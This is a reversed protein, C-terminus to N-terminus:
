FTAEFLDLFAPVSLNLIDVVMHAVIVWQLSKTKMFTITWIASMIFTSIFVEPGRFLESHLGFVAHNISFLISSYMASQLTSWKKTAELLIGRWFFEELWPNILALIIWPIFITWHNLLHNFKLFIPLPIFAILISLIQWAFQRKSPKLWNLLQIKSSFLSIFLVYVLWEFLIIPIFVWKGFLRGFFVAVFVNILIVILPTYLIFKRDLFKM